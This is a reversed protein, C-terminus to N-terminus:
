DFSHNKWYNHISEPTSGYLLSLALSNINKFQLTSSSEEWKPSVTWLGKSQLSIWGTWGLSFWDQINMPFVSTSASAGTSQSGSEFFQSVPFSGSAPFYQPCSSFPIVSSSITPHCWWRLPHSNSCAGPTPSPCSLRAHMTWPAAFLGVPSLSQVSAFILISKQTRLRRNPFNMMAFEHYNENFPFMVWLDSIVSMSFQEHCTSQAGIIPM